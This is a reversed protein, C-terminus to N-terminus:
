RKRYITNVIALRLSLVEPTPETLSHGIYIVYAMVLTSFFATEPVFFALM